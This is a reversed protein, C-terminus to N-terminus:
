NAKGRNMKLQNFSDLKLVIRIRDKFSGTISRINGSVLLPIHVEFFDWIGAKLGAEYFFSSHYGTGLGHDNLLLNVFPKIPTHGAKGPLNSTFSLSILWSSYGLRDNVPSVLNGESFTVQRTWFTAPFESFRDPFTGQFLYQERGSRGSASLNYFPVESSQNLMTGAFLRIDLGNKKGLYSYKYNFEVSTKQYSPGSEFSALLHYPNIFGTKELQYDFQLYSSMKAQVQHEIQFLNSAAIYYGNVKQRVPNNM